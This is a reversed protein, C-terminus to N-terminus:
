QAFTMKADTSDNLSKSTPSSQRALGALGVALRDADVPAHTLAKPCADKLVRLWSPGIVRDDRGASHVAGPSPAASRLLGVARRCRWRGDLIAACVWAGGAGNGRRKALGRVSSPPSRSISCPDSLTRGRCWSSSPTCWASAGEDTTWRFREVLSNRGM